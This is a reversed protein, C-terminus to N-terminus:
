LFWRRCRNKARSFLRRSSCAPFYYYSSCGCPSPPGPLASPRYHLHLHMISHFRPSCCLWPTTEVVSLPPPISYNWALCDHTIWCRPVLGERKRRLREEGKTRSKTPLLFLSLHWRKIKEEKWRATIRDEPQFGETRWKRNNGIRLGRNIINICM